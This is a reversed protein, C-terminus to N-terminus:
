SNKEKTFKSFYSQAMQDYPCHHFPHTSPEQPTAAPHRLKPSLFSSVMWESSMFVIAKKGGDKDM